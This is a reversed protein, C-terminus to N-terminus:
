LKYGPKKYLKDEKSMIENDYVNKWETKPVEEISVSLPDAGYGLLEMFDNVIKDAILQKEEETKGPFMKISIHPM